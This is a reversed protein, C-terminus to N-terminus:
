DDLFCVYYRSNYTSTVASPGWVDSFILELPRTAHNVSNAFPLNHSKAMECDPCVSHRKNVEVSIKNSNLVHNVARFSAHGLRRHWDTISVRIGVFASSVVQQLPPSVCYLGDKSHGKHLVNGSYDQVM